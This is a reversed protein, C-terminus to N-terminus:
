GSFICRPPRPGIRRPPIVWSWYTILLQHPRHETIVPWTGHERPRFGPPPPPLSPPGKVEHWNGLAGTCWATCWYLRYWDQVDDLVALKLRDMNTFLAIYLLLQALCLCWWCKPRSCKVAIIMEKGLVWSSQVEIITKRQVVHLECTPSYQVKKNRKASSRSTCCCETSENDGQRTYYEFCNTM